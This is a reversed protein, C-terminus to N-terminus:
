VNLAVPRGLPKDILLEVPAIVPVGACLETPIADTAIVTVSEVWGVACDAVAVRLRVTAAGTTVLENVM